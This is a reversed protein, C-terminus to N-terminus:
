TLSKVSQQSFLVNISDFPIQMRYKMVGQFRFRESKVQAILYNFSMAQYDRSVFNIESLKCSVRRCRDKSQIM